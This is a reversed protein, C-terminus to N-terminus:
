KRPLFLAILRLELGKIITDLSVKEDRLKKVWELADKFGQKYACAGCEGNNAETENLQIVPYHQTCRICLVSKIGEEFADACADTVKSEKDTCTGQPGLVIYDCGEACQWWEAGHYEHHELTEHKCPDTM